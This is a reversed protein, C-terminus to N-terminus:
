FYISNPPKLLFVALDGIGKSGFNSCFRELLMGEYYLPLLIYLFFLPQTISFLDNIFGFLDWVSHKATFHYKYVVFYRGQLTCPKTSNCLRTQRDKGNEDTDKGNEDALCRKGVM